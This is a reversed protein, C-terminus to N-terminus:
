WITPLLKVKRINSDATILGVGEVLASAVILRDAPDANLSRPLAVSQAAITPSLPIVRMDRAQLISNIFTETPVSVQIRGKDVLMAIEWLTISAVSLTSNESATEIANQAAASLKDPTLFDWVIIHTDAVM